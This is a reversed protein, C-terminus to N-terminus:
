LHQPCRTARGAAGRLAHRQAAAPYRKGDYGLQPFMPSRVQMLVAEAQEVNAAAIKVNKNGALAETILTDLVPDQFQSGGPPISLIKQRRLPMAFARPCTWGPRRYDPGLACGALLLVIMLATCRQM